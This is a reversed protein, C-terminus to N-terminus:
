FNILLTNFGTTVKPYSIVNSIIEQNLGKIFYHFVQNKISLSIFNPDVKHLNEFLDLKPTSYLDCIGM